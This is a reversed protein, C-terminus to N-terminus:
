RPAPFREVEGLAPADGVVRRRGEGGDEILSGQCRDDLCVQVVGCRDAVPGGRHRELVQEGVESTAAVLFWILLLRPTPDTRM